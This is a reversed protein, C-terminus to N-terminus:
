ESLFSGLFEFDTYERYLSCILEFTNRDRLDAEFELYFKFQFDKRALPRSELKTLNIGNVSFRTLLKYLSGAEHPLVLALGIKNSGAPIQLDKSILLFRTCNENSNQIGAELVDLGYLAACEHSSIAAITVDESDAVFKAAAATNSFSNQQISPHRGLFESCQLLGQEHSYVCRIDKLSCGKKGLLDHVVDIKCDKMIYFRYKQMLDYVSLVSGATSNEIPIVGYHAQGSEVAQFVDEFNEVFVSQKETFLRDCAQSGFAGKVGACAVVPNEKMEAPHKLADKLLTRVPTDERDAQKYFGVHVPMEERPGEAQRKVYASIRKHQLNKSIDMLVTFWLRIEHEFPEGAQRCVKQLLQEEREPHFIEMQHELKYDAVKEVIDMRQKFLEVLQKDLRDIQERYEQLGM